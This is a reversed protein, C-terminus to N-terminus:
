VKDVYKEMSTVFCELDFFSLNRVFDCCVDKARQRSYGCKVLRNIYKSMTQGRQPYYPM